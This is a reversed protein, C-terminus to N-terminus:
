KASMTSEESQHSHTHPWTMKLDALLVEAPTLGASTLFVYQYSTRRYRDPRWAWTSPCDKSLAPRKRLRGLGPLTLRELWNLANFQGAISRAPVCNLANFQCARPPMGLSV